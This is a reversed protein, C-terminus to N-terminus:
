GVGDTVILQMVQYLELSHYSHNILDLREHVREASLVDADDKLCFTVGETHEILVSLDTDNARM